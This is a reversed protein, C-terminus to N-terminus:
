LQATAETFFEPGSINPAAAKMSKHVDHDVSLSPAPWTQFRFSSFSLHLSSLADLQGEDRGSAGSHAQFHEGRSMSLFMLHFDIDSLYLTGIIWTDIYLSRHVSLSLTHAGAYCCSFGLKRSDYCRTMHTFQRNM